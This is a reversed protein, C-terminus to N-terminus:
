LFQLNLNYRKITKQYFLTQMVSIKRNNMGKKQLFIYEFTRVLLFYKCIFIEERNFNRM